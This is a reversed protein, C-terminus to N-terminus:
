TIAISILTCRKPYFATYHQSRFSHKGEEVVPAVEEPIPAEEVPVEAAVEPVAEM